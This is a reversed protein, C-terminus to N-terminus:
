PLAVKILKTTDYVYPACLKSAKIVNTESLIDRDFEVLTDRKLYIALAGPKVIYATNVTSTGSGTTMRNAPVVQCGHIMGITGRIIANAGIETNPIWQKSKRLEAYFAPPIVLVKEGDIDEGFQTLADAIGEAPDAASSISATLTATSSMESILDAEIKSNVALVVQKAAEEAIDNNYASLMAEDTFEIARGVKSVQVPKTSQTLKAIPIDAGEQVSAADGVYTYYPLTVTDGPRGVLTYDIRALPSLRIADILKQDIYDAVVQPDLLDALMTANASAAM